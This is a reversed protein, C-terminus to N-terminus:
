ASASAAIQSRSAARDRDVTRVAVFLKDAIQSSSLGEAVLRAVRERRDAVNGRKKPAPAPRPRYRRPRATSDHGFLERYVAPWNRGTRIDSVTRPHIGFRRAVISQAEGAILRAHIEMAQEHTLKRTVCEPLRNAKSIRHFPSICRQNGCSRILSTMAVNTMASPFWHRLLFSFAPTQMTREGVRFSFLARGNRCQGTWEWCGGGLEKVKPAFYAMARSRDDGRLPAPTSRLFYEFAKSM